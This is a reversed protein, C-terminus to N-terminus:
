IFSFMSTWRAHIHNHITANQELNRCTIKHPVNNWIYAHLTNYTYKFGYFNSTSSEFQLISREALTDDNHLKNEIIQLTEDVPVNTFLSFIDFNILTDQSQPDGRVQFCFCIWNGFHRTKKTKMNNLIRVISLTRFSM